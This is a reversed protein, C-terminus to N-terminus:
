TRVKELQDLGATWTEDSGYSFGGMKTVTAKHLILRRDCPDGLYGRVCAYVLLGDEPFQDKPPPNLAASLQAALVSAKTQLEGAPLAEIAACLARAKAGHDPNPVRLAHSSKLRLLKGPKLRKNAQSLTEQLRRIGLQLAGIADVLAQGSATGPKLRKNTEDLAEQLRRVGRDLAQTKAGKRGQTSKQTNKM